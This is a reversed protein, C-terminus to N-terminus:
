TLLLSAFCNDPGFCFSPHSILSAVVDVYFWIGRVRPNHTVRIGDSTGEDHKAVNGFHRLSKITRQLGVFSGGSDDMGHSRSGGSRDLGRTTQPLSAIEEQIGPNAKFAKSDEDPSSDSTVEKDGVSTELTTDYKSPKEKDDEDELEIEVDFQNKRSRATFNTYAIRKSEEAAKIRDGHIAMIKPVFILLLVALATVFIIGAEVFFKAQPNDWVVILIPIGMCWAQLMSAMSIGIYRSEHYETEINRSQYAWWNGVLLISINLILVVIVFPLAGDNSCTGYSEFPRDFMDTSDRFLRNWELPAEFTWAIMVVFNLLYLLAFTGFIDLSTVHIFDLEPNIYAQHVGRTKALLSSFAIVAGSLYLWPGAMCAVNLGNISVPEELSLPFIATAMVLSGVAVMLLFLPQSSCVVRENQFWILWLISVASGVVVIGMLFYGVFRGTSGIYNMNFDPAPLSSPIETGGDGYVFVQGEVPVPKWGDQYFSTPVFKFTQNGDADVDAYQINILEFVETRYDRTGTTNDILVRGTAGNFDLNRFEDYVDAGAFSGGMAKKAARCYSLGLGTIADYLFPTYSGTETSLTPFTPLNKLVSPARTRVYEQFDSDSIAERWKVRYREYSSTPDAQIPPADNKDPHVIDTRL